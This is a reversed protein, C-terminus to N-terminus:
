SIFSFLDELQSESAVLGFKQSFLSQISDDEIDTLVDTTSVRIYEDLNHVTGDLVNLLPFLLVEIICIIRFILKRKNRETHM